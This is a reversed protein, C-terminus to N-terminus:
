CAGVFSLGKPLVCFSERWEVPEGAAAQSLREIRLVPAQEALDLVAAVPASAAVVQMQERCKVARVGFYDGYFEYLNGPLPDKPDLDFFVQHPLAIRDLVRADGAFARRREIVIVAKASELVLAKEEQATAMRQAISLTKTTVTDIDIGIDAFWSVPESAAVASGRAVFTGRGQKRVVIKASELGEVAKRITGISVGFQRALDFENPLVQGQSWEKGVIRELLRERVQAYLPQSVVGTRGSPQARM